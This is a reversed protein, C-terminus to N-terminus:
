GALGAVLVASSADEQAQLMRYLAFLLLLATRRNRETAASLEATRSRSHLRMLQEGDGTTVAWVPRLLGSASLEYMEGDTFTLVGKRGWGAKYIAVTQGSVEDVIEAGSMLFGARRFKWRGAPTEAWYCESWFSAKHLTGTAEGSLALESKRTRIWNITRPLNASGDGWAPDGSAAPSLPIM